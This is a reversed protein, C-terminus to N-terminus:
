LRSDQHLRKAQQLSVSVDRGELFDNALQELVLDHIQGKVQLNLSEVQYDAWDIPLLVEGDSQFYEEFYSGIFDMLIDGAERASIGQSRTMMRADVPYHFSSTPNKLVVTAYVADAHTKLTVEFSRDRMWAAFKRELLQVWALCEVESWVNNNM